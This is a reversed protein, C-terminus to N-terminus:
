ISLVFDWSVTFLFILVSKYIGNFDLCIGLYNEFFYKGEYEYKEALNSNNARYTWYMSFWLLLIIVWWIGVFDGM